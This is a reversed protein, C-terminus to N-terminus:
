SFLSKLFITSVFLFNLVHNKMNDINLTSKTQPKYLNVLLLLSIDASHKEKEKGWMWWEYMVGCYLVNALGSMM